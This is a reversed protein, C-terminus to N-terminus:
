EFVREGQELREALQDFTIFEFGRRKLMRIIKKIKYRYSRTGFRLYYRDRWRLKPLHPMKQESLEFPHIYFVYYNNESLYLRLAWKFFSFNGMRAYGGGSLPVRLGMWRGCPMGFEYFGERSYVNDTIKEFDSVDIDGAYDRQPFDFRSSDYFFGLENLVDLRENDLSFFPARYGRIRTHFRKELREKAAATRRRFEENDMLMPATHDYGHLALAHGRAMYEKIKLEMIEAADCMAFLTAPIKHQELLRIYRELGDLMDQQVEIGNSSICGTDSFAEMDM